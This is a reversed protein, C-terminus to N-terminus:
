LLTLNLRKLTSLPPRSPIPATFANLDHELDVLKAGKSRLSKLDDHMEEGFGCVWVPCGTSIAKNLFPAYGHDHAFLLIHTLNGGTSKVAINDLESQITSDVPDAQDFGPLLEDCYRTGIGGTSKLWRAMPFFSEGVVQANVCYEV